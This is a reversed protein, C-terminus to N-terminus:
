LCGAPLNFLPPEGYFALEDTPTMSTKRAFVRIIENGETM